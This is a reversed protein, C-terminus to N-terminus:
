RYKRNFAHLVSRNIFCQFDVLSARSKMYAPIKEFEDGTIEVEFMLQKKEKTQEALATSSAAIDGSIESLSFSPLSRQSDASIPSLIPICLSNQPELHVVRPTSSNPSVSLSPKELQSLLHIMQLQVRQLNNRTAVFQKKVFNEQLEIAAKVEASLEALEKPAAKIASLDEKLKSKFPIVSLAEEMKQMKVNLQNYTEIVQEM